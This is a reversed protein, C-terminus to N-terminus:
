CCYCSCSWGGGSGGGGGGGVVVVVGEGPLPLPIVQTFLHQILSVRLCYTNKILDTQFSMRTCMQACRRLANAVDNFTTVTDPVRSLEVPRFIPPKRAGGALREVSADRRMRGFHPQMASAPHAAGSHLRLEPPAANKEPRLRKKKTLVSNIVRKVEFIQKNTTPHAVGGSAEAVFDRARAQKGAAHALQKCATEVLLGAPGSLAVVKDLDTEAMKTLAWRYLLSLHKAQMSTLGMQIAGHRLGELLCRVYSQDGGRPVTRFHCTGGAETTLIEEAGHKGIAAGAKRRGADARTADAGGGKKVDGNDGGGFWGIGDIDGRPADGVLSDNDDSDSGSDESDFGDGLASSSLWGIGDTNGGRANNRRYM